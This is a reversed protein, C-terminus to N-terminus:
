LGCNPECSNNMFRSLNGKPGADIIRSGNLTMMYFNSVDNHYAETLRRRAEQENILDGVYESVFQGQEIDVLTNLGWRCCGTKYPKMLAIQRRQFVQNLCRDGARCVLPHCEYMM